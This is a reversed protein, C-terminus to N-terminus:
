HGPNLPLCVCRALRTLNFIEDSVVMHHFGPVNVADFAPTNGGQCIVKKRQVLIGVAHEERRLNIEAARRAVTAVQEGRSM